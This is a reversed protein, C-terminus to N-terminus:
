QANHGRIMIATTNHVRTRSTTSAPSSFTTLTFQMQLIDQPESIRMTLVPQQCDAVSFSPRNCKNPSTSNSCEDIRRPQTQGEAERPQSAQDNAGPSRAGHCYRNIRNNTPYEVQHQLSRHRLRFPMNHRPHEHAHTHPILSSPIQPIYYANHANRKDHTKLTDTVSHQM